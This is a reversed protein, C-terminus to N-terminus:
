GPHVRDSCRWPRGASAVRIREEDAGIEGGVVLACDLHNVRFPCSGVAHHREATSFVAFMPHNLLSRVMPSYAAPVQFTDLGVQDPRWVAYPLSEAWWARLGLRASVGRGLVEANHEGLGHRAGRGVAAAGPRVVHAPGGDTPGSTRPPDAAPGVGQWKSAAPWSVSTTSRRWRCARGGRVRVLWEARCRPDAAGGRDDGGAGAPTCQAAARHRLAPGAGVGSSGLVVACKAACLRDNGAALVFPADSAM